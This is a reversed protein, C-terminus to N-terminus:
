LNQTSQKGYSHHHCFIHVINAAQDETNLKAQFHDLSKDKAFSTSSTIEHVITHIKERGASDSATCKSKPSTTVKASFDGQHEM